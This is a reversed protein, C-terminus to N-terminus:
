NNNSFKVLINKKNRLYGKAVKAKKAKKPFWVPNKKIKAFFVLFSKICM